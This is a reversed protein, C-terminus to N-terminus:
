QKTCVAEEKKQEEIWYYVHELFTRNQPRHIRRTYTAAEKETYAKLHPARYMGSTYHSDAFYAEAKLEGPQVLSDMLAYGQSASFGNLGNQLSFRFSPDLEIRTVTIQRREYHRKTVGELEDLLQLCHSDVQYLEGQVHEGEGPYRLLFPVQFPGCVLPYKLKTQATGVLRAHKKSMQEEMLWHNGFGRKLTGYVFALTSPSADVTQAADTSSEKHSDAVAVKSAATTVHTEKRRNSVAVSPVSCRVTTLHCTSSPVLISM